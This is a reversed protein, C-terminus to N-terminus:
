AAEVSWWAPPREPAYRHKYAWVLRVVRREADVHLSRLKAPLCVRDRGRGIGVSLPPSPLAFGVEPGLGRLRVPTGPAPCPVIMEPPAHHAAFLLAELQEGPDDDAVVGWRSMRLATLEPCPAIGAPVVERGLEVLRDRADEISPLPAGDAVEPAVWGTGLHNLPHAVIGGPHPLETGPLFGPAVQRVGGYAHAWSMPVADFAAAESPVFRGGARRWCRPGFVALRREVDGVRFVVPTVYPACRPGPAWGFATASCGKWLLQRHIDPPDTERRPADSLSLNGDGLAYVLEVSIVALSVDRYLQSRALVPQFPTRNRVFM